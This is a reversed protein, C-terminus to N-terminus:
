VSRTLAPAASAPASTQALGTINALLAFTQKSDSDSDKIYYWRGRYPIALYADKPQSDSYYIKMMGRLVQQWDFVRGDKYVTQVMVQRKIDEPPEQVGKSLYHFVGIVSRTVVYVKHPGPYNSFVIQNQYIEIGAKRLITREKPTLRYHKDIVLTLNEVDGQKSYFGTIADALQMRRLVYTMDIFTQYQPVHSSTSRAASPANFAKGVQQFGVRLVRPISWASQLLLSVDYLDLRSLFSQFFAQDDLPTYSVIPNDSYNLNASPSLGGNAKGPVPFTVSSGLTLGDSISASGSISSVKLAMLNEDYRLRVINLLLEQNSSYNMAKNYNYRDKPLIQPGVSSCGVAM